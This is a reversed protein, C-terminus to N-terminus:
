PQRKGGPREPPVEGVRRDAIEGSANESEGADRWPDDGDDGLEDSLRDDETGARAEEVGDRIELRSTWGGVSVESRRGGPGLLVVSDGSLASGDPMLIALTVSTVPSGTREGLAARVAEDVGERAEASWDAQSDEGSPMAALAARAEASPRVLRYDPPLKLYTRAGSSVSAAEQVRAAAALEGPTLVRADEADIGEVERVSLPRAELVWRGTSDERAVLELPEGTRRCDVAAQRVASRLQLLTEDWIAGPLRQLVAPLAVTMLALILGLAIMVELLTLGRNRM